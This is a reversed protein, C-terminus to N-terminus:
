VFQQISYKFTSTTTANCVITGNTHIWLNASLSTAPESYEDDFSTASGTNNYKLMGQRYNSSSDYIQYEITGSGTGVSTITNNGVSLTAQRGTGLKLAGSYIGTRDGSAFTDGFSYVNGSMSSIPTVSTSKFYNNESVLGTILANPHIGYSSNNEFSSDKVRLTNAYGTAGIGSVGGNFLCNRFTTSQVTQASSAFKVLQTSAAPGVFQVNDLISDVASDIVAVPNTGSSVSLKMGGIFIHIPLTAGNANTQFNTDTQYLSDTTQIITATASQLVTNSKGEGILVCYPPVLIKDSVVYTGAPFYIVRRVATHTALISSTYVEQIARNIATTDDTTGDGIAGFDKVSVHEDLVSQISRPTPNLADVGTQSTYGSETGKFTYSFVLSLFDTRETLIETRGEISAGEETTGNGIWLRPATPGLSWGFEGSALQPLDDHLGRRVQIRSIQVVAM